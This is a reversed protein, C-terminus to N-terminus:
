GGQAVPPVLKKMADEYAQREQGLIELFGSELKVEEEKMAKDLIGRYWALYTQVARFQSLQSEVQGRLTSKEDDTQQAKDVFRVLLKRDGGEVEFLQDPVRQEASLEFAARVLAPAKGIGPINGFTDFTRPIPGPAMQSFPGTESATLLGKGAEGQASSWGEVIEALPKDASAKAKALLDSGVEDVKKKALEEQLM